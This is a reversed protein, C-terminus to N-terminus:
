SKSLIMSGAGLPYLGCQTSPLQYAPNSTNGKTWRMGSPSTSGCAIAMAVVKGAGSRSWSQISSSSLPPPVLEVGAALSGGVRRHSRSAVRRAKWLWGVTISTPLRSNAWLRALDLDCCRLRSPSSLSAMVGPRPQTDWAHLGSSPKQSPDGCLSHLRASCLLHMLMPWLSLWLSTAPLVRAPQSTKETGLTLSPMTMALISHHHPPLSNSVLPHDSTLLPWVM